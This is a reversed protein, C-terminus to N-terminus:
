FDYDLLIKRFREFEKRVLKYQLAQLRRKEINKHYYSNHDFEYTYDPNKMRWNKSARLRAENCKRQIIPM